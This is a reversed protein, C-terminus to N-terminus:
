PRSGAPYAFGVMLLVAQNSRRSEDPGPVIRGLGAELRGEAFLMGAGIRGNIGGGALMSWDFARVDYSDDTDRCRERSGDSTDTVACRVRLGAAPGAYLHFALRDRVLPVDVRLMVPVEVYGIALERDAGAGSAGIITAGKEVYLVEGQFSLDAVIHYTIFGGGAFGTSRETAPVGAPALDSISIGVKAGGSWQALVPEAVAMCMFLMGASSMASFSTTM